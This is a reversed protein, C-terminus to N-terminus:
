FAYNVGLAIVPWLEFEDLEDETDKELDRLSTELAAQNAFNGGAVVNADIDVDIDLIAVGIDASFSFGGDGGAGRGWGIGVYPQFSDGLSINGGVSAGVLDGPDLAQGDIVIGSQLVGTLDAEGNNKLMGVTFRFSGSFAHWDLLFANAGYDFDLEADIDGEFGDDGVTITEDEGDIDISATSFRLNVNKTLGLSLDIGVGNIGAKAGIGFDLANVNSAFFLLGLALALFKRM